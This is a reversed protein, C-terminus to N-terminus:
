ALVKVAFYGTGGKRFTEVDLEPLHKKQIAAWDVAGIRNVKNVEVGGGQSFEGVALSVLVAKAADAKVTAVDAVAKAEIYEAAATVWPADDRVSLTPWFADWAARITNWYDPNPAVQVMIHQGTDAAWVMFHAVAAGSVMLQHQVQANDAPILENREAAKWRESQTPTKYPTKIELIVDEDLNIGDLSCGYGGEFYVAPRMHEHLESYAARAFPEQASGQRMAQNVFVSKGLKAARVDAPTQYSSLGMIAPTESAMRHNRRFALWEESGQRLQMELRM